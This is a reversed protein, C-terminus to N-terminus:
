IGSVSGDENSIWKIINLTSYIREANRNHDHVRLLLQLDPYYATKGLYVEKLTIKRESEINQYNKYIVKWTEGASKFPITTVKRNLLGLRQMRYQLQWGKVMKFYTKM